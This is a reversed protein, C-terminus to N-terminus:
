PKQKISDIQDSYVTRVDEEALDPFEKVAQEKEQETLRRRKGNDDNHIAWCDAYKRIYYM